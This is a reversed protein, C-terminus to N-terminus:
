SVRLADDRKVGLVIPIMFMSAYMVPFVQYAFFGWSFSYLLTSLGFLAFGYWMKLKRKVVLFIGVVLLPISLWLGWSVTYDWLYPLVNKGFNTRAYDLTQWHHYVYLADGAVIAQFILYGIFGLLAVGVSRLVISINKTQYWLYFGMPLLLLPANIKMLVTMATLLIIWKSRPKITIVWMTLAFFLWMFLDNYFMIGNALLFRGVLMPLISVGAIMYNTKRRIIDAFLFVTIIILVIDFLRLLQVQEVVDTFIMAIPYAIVNALLPHIWIPTTYAKDFRYTAWYDKEEPPYPSCEEELWAGTTEVNPLNMTIRYFFYEDNGMVTNRIATSNWIYFVNGMFVLIAIIYIVLGLKKSM